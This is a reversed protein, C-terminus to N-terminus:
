VKKELFSDDVILTKIGAHVGLGLDLASNSPNKPTNVKSKTCVHV